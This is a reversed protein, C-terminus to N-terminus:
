ARRARRPSTSARRPVIATTAEAAATAVEPVVSVYVDATFSHRAHGLTASIVKIDVGAALALTAACHRLDHFRIPPLRSIHVLEGFRQSLRDPNLPSGDPRTFIRGSDVWAEGVALRERRQQRRWAKLLEVNVADLAVTRWSAESKLTGGEEEDSELLSLTGAEWDVNVWEAGVVEGRRLGRTGALHFVTRLREGWEEIFDFFAGVQAPTWVMVPGPVRGTDKWQAVRAATWVLPRVRRVKPLEVHVAPNHAIRKQRHATGLASSLVRHIRQIRAASLPRQQARGRKEGKALERKTSPARAALLRRLLEGPVEGEPLNNIQGIAEYLRELHQERVDALRMHGLGPKGYLDITERYSERTSEALAKKGRLWLDLWQGFKINRDVPAM